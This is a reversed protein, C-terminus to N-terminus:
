VSVEKTYKSSDTLNLLLKESDCVSRQASPELKANQHSTTATTLKDKPRDQLSRLNDQKERIRKQKKKSPLKYIQSNNLEKNQIRHCGQCYRYQQMRKWSEDDSKKSKDEEIVNVADKSKRCDDNKDNLNILTITFPSIKRLRQCKACDGVSEVADPENQIKPPCQQGICNKHYIEELAGIFSLYQNEDDKMDDIDEMECWANEDGVDKDADRNQSNNNNDKISNDNSNGNDKHAESCMCDLQLHEFSISSEIQPSTMVQCKDIAKMIKAANMRVDKHSQAGKEISGAEEEEERFVGIVKYFKTSCDQFCRSCLIEEQTHRNTEALLVSSAYAPELAQIKQSLPLLTQERGTVDPYARVNNYNEETTEQQSLLLPLQEPQWHRQATSIKTTPSLSTTSPKYKQTVPSVSSTLIETLQHSSATTAITTEEKATTLTIVASNPGNKLSDLLSSITMVATGKPPAIEQIRKLQQSVQRLEELAEQDSM